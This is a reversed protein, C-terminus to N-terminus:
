LKIGEYQVDVLYLGDPPALFKAKLDVDKEFMKEFEKMELKGDIVAAMTGVLLRVMNHLFRNATIEFVLESQQKKWIALKINCRNDSKLSKTKCFNHFHCANAVIQAMQNLRNLDLPRPLVWVYGKKIASNQEYIVYRYTRSIADKRSNFQSSVPSCGMIVIDGPLMRNLKAMIKEPPLPRPSYFNAYQGLAHVGSDTRGAAVLSVEHGLFKELTMKIVDQVTRENKQSQWGCFDRGCYEIKLLINRKIDLAL